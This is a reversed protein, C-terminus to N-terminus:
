RARRIFLVLPIILLASVMLGWFVNTYGIMYAQQTIESDIAALGELEYLDWEDAYAGHRLAESSPVVHAALEEHNVQVSRSLVAVSLAVGVSSALSYTLSFLTTASAQKHSPLTSYTVALIATVIFGLAVGQVVTPWIIDWAGIDLNYHAMMWSSAAFTLLGCVLMIRPDMRNVLPGAVLTALMQALGRPVILVGITLVELGRLKELMTPILVLPALGIYAHVAIMAIGLCYNRDRFV